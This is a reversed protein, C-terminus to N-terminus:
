RGTPDTTAGRGGAGPGVPPSTRATLRTRTAESTDVGTGTGTGRRSLVPCSSGEPRTQTHELRYVTYPEPGVGGM